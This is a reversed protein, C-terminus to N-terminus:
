FFFTSGTYPWDQPKFILQCSPEQLLHCTATYSSSRQMFSNRRQKAPSPLWYHLTIRTYFGNIFSSSAKIGLSFVLSAAGTQPWDFSEVFCWDSELDLTGSWLVLIFDRIRDTALWIPQSVALWIVTSCYLLSIKFPYSWFAELREGRLVLQM